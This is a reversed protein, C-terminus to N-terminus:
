KSQKSLGPKNDAVDSRQRRHARDVRRNPNLRRSHHVPKVKRGTPEMGGPQNTAAQLNTGVRVRARHLNVGRTRDQRHATGVTQYQDAGIVQLHTAAAEKLPRPEGNIEEQQRPKQLAEGPMRRQHAEGATQARDAGPIQLLERDLVPKLAPVGPQILIM